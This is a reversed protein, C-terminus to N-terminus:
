TNAALYGRVQAVYAEGNATAQWCGRRAREAMGERELRKLVTNMADVKVGISRALDSLAICDSARVLEGLVRLRLTGHTHGNETM